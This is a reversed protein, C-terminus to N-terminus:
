FQGLNLAKEELAVSETQIYTNRHETIKSLTFACFRTQGTLLKFFFLILGGSVTSLTAKNKEYSTLNAERGVAQRLLSSFMNKQYILKENVKGRL